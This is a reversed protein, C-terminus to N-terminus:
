YGREKLMKYLEFLDEETYKKLKNKEWNWEDKFGGVYYGGNKVLPESLLSYGPYRGMVMAILDSKDLDVKMKILLFAM